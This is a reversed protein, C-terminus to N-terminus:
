YKRTSYVINLYDPGHKARKSQSIVVVTRIMGNRWLTSRTTKTIFVHIYPKVLKLSVQAGKRGIYDMGM